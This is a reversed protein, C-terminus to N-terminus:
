DRGVVQFPSFKTYGSVGCRAAAALEAAAAARSAYPKSHVVVLDGHFTDFWDSLSVYSAVGCRRLTRKVADAQREIRDQIAAAKPDDGNKNEFWWVDGQPISAYVNWFGECRRANPSTFRADGANACADTPGQAAASPRPVGPALALAGLIVLTGLWRNV